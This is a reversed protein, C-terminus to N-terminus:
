TIGVIKVRASNNKPRTRQYKKLMLFAKFFFFPWLRDSTKANLILFLNHTLRAHSVESVAMGPTQEHPIARDTASHRLPAPHAHFNLVAARPKTKNTSARKASHM